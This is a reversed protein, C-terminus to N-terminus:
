DLAEELTFPQFILYISVVLSGISGIILAATSVSFVLAVLVLLSADISANIYDERQFKNLVILINLAVVLGIIALEM